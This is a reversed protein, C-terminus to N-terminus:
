VLFTPTKSVVEFLLEGVERLHLLSVPLLAASLIPEKKSIGVSGVELGNDTLSSALKSDVLDHYMM